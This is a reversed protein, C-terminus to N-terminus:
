GLRGLRNSFCRERGHTTAFHANEEADVEEVLADVQGVDVGHEKKTRRLARGDEEL